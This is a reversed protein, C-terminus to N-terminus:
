FLNKVFDQYEPRTMTNRKILEQVLPKIMRRIEPRRFYKINSAVAKRICNRESIYPNVAKIFQTVDDRDKKGSLTALEKCFYMRVIAEGAM